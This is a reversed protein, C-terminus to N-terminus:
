PPCNKEKLVRFIHQKRKAEMNESLSYVTNFQKLGISLNDKGEQQNWSKKKKKRLTIIIFRPM